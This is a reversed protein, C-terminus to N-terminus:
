TALHRAGPIAQRTNQSKLSVGLAADQLSVGLCQLDIEGGGSRRRMVALVWSSQQEVVVVFNTSVAAPQLWRWWCDLIRRDRLPKLHPVLRGTCCVTVGADLARAAM